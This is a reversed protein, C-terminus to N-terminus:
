RVEKIQIFGEDILEQIIAKAQERSGDNYRSGACAINVLEIIARKSDRYVRVTTLAIMRGLIFIGYKPEPEVMSLLYTEVEKKTRM